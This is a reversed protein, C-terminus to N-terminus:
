IWVKFFDKLVQLFYTDPQNIYIGRNRLVKYFQSQLRNQQFVSDNFSVHHEHSNSSCTYGAELLFKHGEEWVNESCQNSSCVIGGGTKLWPRNKDQIKTTILRDAQPLMEWCLTHIRRMQEANCTQPVLCSELQGKLVFNAKRVVKWHFAARLRDM